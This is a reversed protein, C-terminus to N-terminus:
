KRNIGDVIKKAEEETFIGQILALGVDIKANVLPASVLENNLLMGIHNGINKETIDAWKEKGEETMILKVTHKGQWLSYEATKIDYNNLLVENKLYFEEKTNKVTMATLDAAPEFQAVRFELVISEVSENKESCSFILVLVCISLITKMIEGKYKNIKSIFIWLFLIL